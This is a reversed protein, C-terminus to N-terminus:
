NKFDKTNLNKRNILQIAFEVFMLNPVWSLWAVIRYADMYELKYIGLLVGIWIRLTVAAFTLAYSRIMWKSHETVLGKRIVLYGKLSTFFWLVGGIVFGLRATWGGDANLAIYFGSTSGILCSVIYIKGIVKHSRPYKNRLFRLFQYPGLLLGISGFIVHSYFAIPYIIEKMLKERGELINKIQFDLYVWSKLAIMASLLLILIFWIKRLVKGM